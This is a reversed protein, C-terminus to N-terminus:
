VKVTVQVVGNNVKIKSLSVGTATGANNRTHPHGSGTDSVRTVGKSGPFLDGADGQNKNFELQRAGDAQVLAVRYAMPNTNDSQTEDIHWLALGSGPLKADRGKRQRNEILFYEKSAKGRTWLRCCATKNNELPDLTLTASATINKPKIWGLKALCWASMRAPKDGNGNWSGGAMLCWDGIGHSRYSTDYLDPLGLFHGFEHSFVGLKGDEPATFYAYATVGSNVFPTQLTWKHSWIMNKRRAPNPEAEAGGGAHVLFLGDVYRDGNADFPALSNTRCYHKLVELLLGPTNQPFSGGTGSQGNTYHGYPHTARIWKTVQGTVNLRGFSMDKYFNHMSDPNAPDFLLQHFQSPPQAGVTDSFDVLLVLCNLTLKGTSPQLALRMTPQGAARAALAPGGIDAPPYIVGDNFGTRGVAPIDLMGSLTALRADAASLIRGASIQTRINAIVDPRAICATPGASYEDKFGAHSRDCTPRIM